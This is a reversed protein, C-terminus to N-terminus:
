QAAGRAAPQPAQIVKPPEPRNLPLTTRATTKFANEVELVAEKADGPLLTVTIERTESKIPEGAAAKIEWRYHYGLGPAASLTLQGSTKFAKDDISIAAHPRALFWGVGALGIVMSASYAQVRGTQLARLVTGAVSVVGASVKALIGDIIWKDAMTFIDALADVMGVVTADYLEDIRWKDYILRYLGPFRQAFAREPAGDRQAYVSWAAGGGIAFAALGPAIMMVELKGVGPREALAASAKAFVPELLRGLPELHVPAANLFGAVMALGALIMLPVTMALPSEHPLPGELPGKEEHHEHHGHGPDRWNKVVRWGRFRGHFTMFYARFMYFATM